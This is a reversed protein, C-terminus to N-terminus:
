DDDQMEAWRIWDEDTDPTDEAMRAATEQLLSISRPSNSTPIYFDCGQEIPASIIRWRAPSVIASNRPATM